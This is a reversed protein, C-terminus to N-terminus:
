VRAEFRACPRGLEISLLVLPDPLRDLQEIGPAFYSAKKDVGANHAGPLVLELLRYTFRYGSTDSMWSHLHFGQTDSSFNLRLQQQYCNNM